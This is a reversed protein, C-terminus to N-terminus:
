SSGTSGGVRSRPWPGCSPRRTTRSPALGGSGPDGTVVLLPPVRDAALWTNIETLAVHWGRFRHKMQSASMVGRGRPDFHQDVDSVTDVVATGSGYPADIWRGVGRDVTYGAAAGALLAGLSLWWSAENPMVADKLADLLAAVLVGSAVGLVAGIM